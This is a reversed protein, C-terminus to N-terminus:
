FLALVTGFLALVLFSVAAAVGRQRTVDFLGLFLLRFRASGPDWFLAKNLPPCTERRTGLRRTKRTLRTLLRVVHQCDTGVATDFLQIISLHRFYPCKVSNHVFSQFISM